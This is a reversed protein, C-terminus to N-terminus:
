KSWSASIQSVPVVHRNLCVMTKKLRYNDFYVFFIPHGQNACQMCLWQKTDVQIEATRAIIDVFRHQPNFLSFMFRGSVACIRCLESFTAM